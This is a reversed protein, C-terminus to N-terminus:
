GVGVGVGSRSKGSFFEELREEDPYVHDRVWEYLHTEALCSAFVIKRRRSDVGGDNEAERLADDYWARGFSARQWRTM